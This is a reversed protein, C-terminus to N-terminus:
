VTAVAPGSAPRSAKFVILGVGLVLVAAAAAGFGITRRWYSPAVRIVDPTSEDSIEDTAEDPEGALLRAVRQRLGVPATERGWARRVAAKLVPEDFKTRQPTM